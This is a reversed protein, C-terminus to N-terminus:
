KHNENDNLEKLKTTGRSGIKIYARLKWTILRKRKMESLVPLIAPVQAHLLTALEKPSAVQTASLTHLIEREYDRALKCEQLALDVQGEQQKM